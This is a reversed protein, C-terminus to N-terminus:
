RELEFLRWTPLSRTGEEPVKWGRELLLERIAARDEYSTFRFVNSAYAKPGEAELLTPEWEDVRALLDQPRAAYVQTDPDVEHMLGLFTGSRMQDVLLYDYKKARDALAQHEAQMRSFAYIQWLSNLLAFVLLTPILWRRWRVSRLPVVVGIAMLPWVASLYRPGTAHYPILFAIYLGGLTFFVVLSMLLFPNPEPGRIQRILTRLREGPPYRRFIVVICVIAVAALIVNGVITNGLLDFLHFGVKLIRNQFGRLTVPVKNPNGGLILPVIWPDVAIAPIVGALTSLAFRGLVWRNHRQIAVVLGAMICIGFFMHSLAGVFVVLTLAAYARWRAAQGTRIIHVFRWAFLVSVCALLSYQRAMRTSELPAPSVAWVLAAVAAWRPDDLVTRAAAFIVFITLLDILTNLAPGTWVHMGLIRSAFHLLWFYGPLHINLTAVDRAMERPRFDTRAVLFQQWQRASVWEGYPPLESGAETVVEYDGERGAAELYSFTGDFSLTTRGSVIGARLALGVVVALALILYAQRNRM